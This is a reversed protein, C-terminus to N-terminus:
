SEPKVLWDNIKTMLVIISFLVLGIACAYGMLQSLFAQQFMFLAPVQVVGGPGGEIGFLLLVLGADNISGMIVLIMM